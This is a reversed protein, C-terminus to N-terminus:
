ILTYIVARINAIEREYTLKNVNEAYYEYYKRSKDLNHM